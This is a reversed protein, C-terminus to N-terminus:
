SFLISIPLGLTSPQPVCAMRDGAGAELTTERVGAM